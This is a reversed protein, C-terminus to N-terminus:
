PRPGLPTIAYARTDILPRLSHSGVWSARTAIAAIANCRSARAVSVVYGLEDGAILASDLESASRGIAAVERDETLAVIRAALEQATRDGIAYLIRRSRMPAGHPPTGSLVSECEWSEAARADVRVADPGTGAGLAAVPAPSLVVYTRDWPLPTVELDARASAYAVLDLDETALVAYGADVANRAGESDLRRVSAGTPTLAIRVTWRDSSGTGWPRLWEAALTQACTAPPVDLARFHLTATDALTSPSEAPACTAKGLRPGPSPRAGGGCAGIACLAGAWVLTRGGGLGRRM